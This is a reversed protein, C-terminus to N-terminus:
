LTFTTGVIGRVSSEPIENLLQATFNLGSCHLACLIEPSLEKLFDISKEIRSKSAWNMHFGGILAYIPEIGTLKQAMNITNMIGTHGCGTLVVLGKNKVNIFISIEDTFDDFLFEGNKQVYLGTTLEEKPSTEIEGSTWTGPTLQILESTEKINLKYNKAQEYLQDKNFGPLQIIKKEKQLQEVKDKNLAIPKDMLAGMVVWKPLFANKEFIIETGPSFQNIIHNLGGFHDFHGHSLIFSEIKTTDIQLAKMNNSVSGLLGGSDFLFTYSSDQHAVEVLIALGHEALCRIATPGPQQVKTKFKQDTRLTIDTTNETLIRIKVTDVGTNFDLEMFHDGIFNIKFTWNLIKQPSKLRQWNALFFYRQTAKFM